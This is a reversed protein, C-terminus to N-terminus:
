YTEESREVALLVNNEWLWQVIQTGGDRPVIDKWSDLIDATTQEPKFHQFLRDLNKGAIYAVPRGLAPHHLAPALEIWKDKMVPTAILQAKPCVRLKQTATLVTSNTAQTKTNDNADKSREEWFEYPLRIAAKAYEASTRERYQVIREQQRNCYFTQAAAAHQPYQILTNVVIAAQIASSLALHVGQSAMPDVAFSADGVRIYDAGVPDESYRSSADCGYVNSLVTECDLMNTLSFQQLNSLYFQRLDTDGNHSLSAPDTYLSIMCQKDNLLAAWLWANQGAEMFGDCPPTSRLQWIAHLAFLSPATRVRKGPLAGTRGSADVLFRASIMLTEGNVDAKIQWEHDQKHVISQSRAPQLVEVGADAAYQLLVQDFRGRDVHTGKQEAIAAEDSGWKILTSRRQLFAEQKITNGVGLYHLLVDTEESLCIGAHPRPFKEKELLIVRHGLESLRMSITAGAPGGGIVCIDTHLAQEM